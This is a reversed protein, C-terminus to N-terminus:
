NPRRSVQRKVKLPLTLMIGVLSVAATILFALGYDGKLDFLFGIVIPGVTGGFTFGNNVAGMIIGHSQLGFLGAVLPSQSTANGGYALGFMISFLYIAWDQRAQILFLLSFFMISFCIVYIMKNGIRDGLDGFLVKGAISAIGIAAVLGAATGASKGIDSAHPAIHVLIALLCFGFCFFIGFVMWFEFMFIAEKISCRKIDGDVRNEHIEKYGYPFQGKLKPTLRLFQAFTLVVILLTIGLIIYSTRWNYSTILYNSVPSLLFTGFGMGSIAIGTMTSRKAIFWRAITSVLPVYMGGTGLGMFVGYYLYLEWCHNTRTTLIIGMGLIIGCLTLVKRPGYRDNFKGMIIGSPGQLLWSLSYAGATTARSWGFEALLPKFFVGFAYHIGFVVLFIIFSSVVIVYGYFFRNGNDNM